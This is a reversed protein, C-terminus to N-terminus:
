ADRGPKHRVVQYRAPALSGGHGALHSLREEFQCQAERPDLAAPLSPMGADMAVGFPDSVPVSLMRGTVRIRREAILAEAIEVM